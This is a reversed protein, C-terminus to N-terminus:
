QHDDRMSQPPLSGYLFVYKIVAIDKSMEKVELFIETQNQEIKEIQPLIFEKQLKRIEKYDSWFELFGWSVLSIIVGSLVSIIKFLIKEDIWFRRLAHLIVMFDGVERRM